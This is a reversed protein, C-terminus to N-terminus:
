RARAPVDVLRVGCSTAWDVIRHQDSWYGLRVMGDATLHRCEPLGFEQVLGSCLRHVAAVLPGGDEAVDDIETLASAEPETEIVLDDDEFDPYTLVVPRTIPWLTVRVTAPGSTGARDRAHRALYRLGSLVAIVLDQEAVRYPDTDSSAPQWDRRGVCAAFAGAGDEHLQAALKEARRRQGYGLAVLRSHGVAAQSWRLDPYGIIPKERLAEQEFERLSGADVRFAGAIDPVLTVVLFTSTSSDLWRRLTSAEREHRVEVDALTLLRRRYADAVEYEAMHVTQSGLRRPYLLAKDITTVAHPTLASRPVAILILGGGPQSPDPLPWVDLRPKPFTNSAVIEHIRRVERDAIDVTSLVAAASSVRDEKIGVIILGGNSNAFAAVDSALDKKKKEAAQQKEKATRQDAAQTDPEVYLASKFDLDNSETVGLDVLRAVDEYRVEGLPGGLIAELRSSRFAVM